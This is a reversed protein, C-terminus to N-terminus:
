HVSGSESKRLRRILIWALTTAADFDTESIDKISTTQFHQELLDELLHISDFKEVEDLIQQEREPRTRTRAETLTDWLEELDSFNM